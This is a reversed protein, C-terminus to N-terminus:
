VIRIVANTADNTPMGIVVSNATVTQSGINWVGINRNADTTSYIMIADFPTSITVNPFTISGSPSWYATTGSLQATNANPVSVGGATYGSGSAEGTATYASVSGNITASALYLAASMSKGNVVAGLAAQKMAGSLAQTNAM